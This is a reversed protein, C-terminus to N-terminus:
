DLLALLREAQREATGAPNRANAPDELALVLLWLLAFLRRCEILRVVESRTLDFRDLFYPADFESDVWTSVHEVVDALEYARDSRGSDEFDVIRIDSGDWLFNALNGDAQGLVPSGAPEASAFAPETLALWRMGEAVGRQIPSPEATLRLQEYRTRIGRVAHHENWLRPPLRAALSGPVSEYLRALARAMARAQEADVSGGRLPVGPLRSMIVTPHTASLDAELPVPALGPSHEELISLARWEREHERDQTSRFRKIVRDQRIDIGHTGWQAAVTGGCEVNSCRVGGLIGVPASAIVAVM